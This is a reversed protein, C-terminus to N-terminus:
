LYYIVCARYLSFAQGTIGLDLVLLRHFFFQYIFLPLMLITIFNTIELERMKGTEEM